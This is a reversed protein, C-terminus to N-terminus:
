MLLHIFPLTEACNGFRAGRVPDTQRKPSVDFSWNTLRFRETNVLSFRAMQLMPKWRGTLEYDWAYGELSAGLFFDREGRSRFCCSYMFPTKSGIQACWRGYMCVLPLYFSEKTANAPAPGLSSLFLGLLDYNNWYPVAWHQKKKM